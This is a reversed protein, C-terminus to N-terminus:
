PELHSSSYTPIVFPPVYAGRKARAAITLEDWGKRIEACAAAIEEPHPDVRNLQKHRLSCGGCCFGSRTAVREGCEKCLGYAALRSACRRCYPWEAALRQHCNRCLLPAADPKAM